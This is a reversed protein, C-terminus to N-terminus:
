AHQVEAGRARAKDRSERIMLYIGFGINCVLTAALFVIAVENGTRVFCSAIAAAWWLAGIVMQPTWRVMTACAIHAVGLLTEIGAMLIHADVHGSSVVPFAFVFM